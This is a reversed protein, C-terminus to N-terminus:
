EPEHRTEEEDRRLVLRLHRNTTYPFGRRLTDPKVLEGNRGVPRPPPPRVSTKDKRGGNKVKWGLRTGSSANDRLEHLFAIILDAPIPRHGTKWHNWQKPNYDDPDMHEILWLKFERVPVRAKKAAEAYCDRSVGSKEAM